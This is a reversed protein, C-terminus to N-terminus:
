VKLILGGIEASKDVDVIPLPWIRNRAWGYRSASRRWAPANKGQHAGFRALTREPDFHSISMGLLHRGSPGRVRVISSATPSPM